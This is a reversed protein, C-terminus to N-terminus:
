NERKGSPRKESREGDRVKEKRNGRKSKETREWDRVKEKM